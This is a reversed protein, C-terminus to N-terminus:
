KTDPDIRLFLTDSNTSPPMADIYDKQIMYEVDMGTWRIEGFLESLSEAACATEKENVSRYRFPVTLINIEFIRVHLLLTLWNLTHWLMAFEPAKQLYSTQEVVVM